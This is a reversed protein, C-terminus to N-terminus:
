KPQFSVLLKLVENRKTNYCYDFHHCTEQDDSIYECIKEIFTNTVKKNADGLPKIQKRDPRSLFFSAKNKLVALSKDYKANFFEEDYGKYSYVLVKINDFNMYEWYWGNNKFFRFVFQVDQNTASWCIISDVDNADIDEQQQNDMGFNKYVTINGMYQPALMRDNGAYTQTQGSKLYIIGEISNKADATSFSLLLVSLLITLLRMKQKNVKITCLYCLFM